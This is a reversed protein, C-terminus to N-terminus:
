KLENNFYAKGAVPTFATGGDPARPDRIVVSQSADDWYATRGRALIKVDSPNNLVNAIHSSFEDCTTIGPFEGRQIVHKTFAHGRGIETAALENRLRVGNAINNAGTAGEMAVAEAGGAALLEPFLFPGILELVHVNPDNLVSNVIANRNATENAAQKDPTLPLTGKAVCQGHGDGMYYSGPTYPSGDNRSAPITKQSGDAFVFTTAGSGPSNDWVSSERGHTGTITTTGPGGGFVGVWGGLGFSDVAGTLSNNCNAYLNNGGNEAIPDRNLWRQLNPDYFRYLYYALGSNEHTEKSSFRYLNAEALPGSQSLVNGFPDYSYKAVIYQVSNILATINGNGDAHYFSTQGSTRDRRALLGGIGGAGQLGGSLDIGRTYTVIPLNNTDREQVVLNGDYIYRVENTQIWAGYQWTFEKRIRRRLRGDYTFESKWANTETVRTLQNEDDYDFTRTGVSLLNGNLDYSYSNTAPLNITVVNTDGRGLSDSAIATFTNNGDVLTFSNSSAFTFDSYLFALTSNVTVSTAQSTTTGAVTLANTANRTVNSLENLSNVNFTEILVNNTRTNLNHAADYAYKLQEQLRNTVGGSEKGLASTLQGIQDYGYNVYNGATFTQKTREGGLDYTYSHSNLVSNGSNKLVTSLLRAVSDYTNTYYATNPFLLNAVKLKRTVDYQYSYAGSPTTINTMRRAPDYAYSQTWADADPQQINLSARLRNNYSYSITDDNWLGGESLLEGAADYGYHTTGVADVMNTPRNLADYALAIGHSINYTINTVNGVADLAYYSNGKSISYRNTPREDADYKYTFITNGAADVKNSVMGFTDFHWTTTQNKGDTLTLLDGAPNYTYQTLEQNANTEFLKRMAADYVFYTANTLQNTYAVLGLASYGFYEMGSDPYARTLVRNLNDYTVTVTISNADINTQTRDLIDFYATQVGGMANSVAFMLGQNNFWNTSSRGASDVANTLRGPLDYFNTVSFSAPYVANTLRGQNDYFFDTINGLADTISELSGCSCYSYITPQFNANTAATLRRMSDYLFLNTFGMRDVVRVLDLNQYTNSVYTGDPFDVRVLRQLNDWTNSTTLGRADTHTLVLDDAYTFINTGFYATGGTVTFAYNTAPWNDSGYINTFILGGPTTLGSLQQNGNYTLLTVQNLADFNTTVEHNANFRNSLVQIGLANTATLLDIGSTSDYAFYNTRLAVSGPATYTNINTLVNGIANRDDRDFWTNGDPMVRATYLPLIQSGEFEVNTKGAYDYWTKQGEVVGNTDPSPDRELALTQGVFTQSIPNAYQLWHRMRALRFDNTTLSSINTTSLNGYQRPGWHFTNRVDLNTNDFNNSLSSTSPVGTSYSSAIGPASNSYLFLEKGSDPNIVLISRGNPPFNGPVTDTIQFSNTGYPTVMNTPWDTNTDYGLSTSLGIVDIINTLHGNTDYALSNTRGFADVVQSILNTSYANTSNYYILNTRGDGDVVNQLRIVPATNAYSYYNLTLAQGQPDKRQSLFAEQFVGSNNTVIFGYIDQSGDPYSMTFGNTTDGTLHGNSLYDNTGYFTTQRGNSFHVVNSSNGDHTVFSFWAFNWKKGISFFNPNFGATTERQGYDLLFSVRPGLAPQYGLPEDYLRLSIFPESVQWVPMGGCGKKKCPDDNDSGDDTDSSQRNTGTCSGSFSYFLNPSGITFPIGYQTDGLNFVGCGSGLCYRRINLNNTGHGAAASGVDTILTQGPALPCILMTDGAPYDLFVKNTVGTDNRITALQAHASLAVNLLAMVIFFPVNKM